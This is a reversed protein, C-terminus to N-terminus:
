ARELDKLVRSVGIMTLIVLPHNNRWVNTKLFFVLSYLSIVWDPNRTGTELNQTGICLEQCTQNHVLDATCNFM